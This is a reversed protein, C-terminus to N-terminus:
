GLPGDGELHGILVFLGNVHGCIEDRLNKGRISRCIELLNLRERQRILAMNGCKRKAIGTGDCQPCKDDRLGILGDDLVDDLDGITGDCCGADEYSAGFGYGQWDCKEDTKM